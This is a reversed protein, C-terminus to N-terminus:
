ISMTLPKRSGVLVFHPNRHNLLHGSEFRILHPGFFGPIGGAVAFEKRTPDVCPVTKEFLLRERTALYRLVILHTLECALTAEEAVSLLKLQAHFPKDAFQPAPNKCILYWRCQMKETCMCPDNDFCYKTTSHLLTPHKEYVQMVTMPSGPFLIYNERCEQLTAESFPVERLMDMECPSYETGLHRHVEETGHFNTGMIERARDQSLAHARNQWYQVLRERVTPNDIAAQLDEYSLGAQEMRRFWEAVRGVIQGPSPQNAISKAM